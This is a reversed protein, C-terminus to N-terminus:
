LVHRCYYHHCERAYGRPTHHSRARCTAGIDHNLNTFGSCRIFPHSSRVHQVFSEKILSTIITSKGVGDSIVFMFRHDTQFRVRFHNPEGDGVLLIRVTDRRPMSSHQTRRRQREATDLNQNFIGIYAYRNLAAKYKARKERTEGTARVM